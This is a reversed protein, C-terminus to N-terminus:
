RNHTHAFARHASSAKSFTRPARRRVITSDLGGSMLVGASDSRLRDAVATDLLERFREIYEESQRFQIPSSVCLNWYRRVELKETACVLLHAPPLRQIDAFSTSSPEQNMDWLLFDAIALDNLRSSVAPHMRLCDLTNGFVFTSGSRAYFLPKVGMQDRACFLRRERADWIAFSFDGLLNEVCAEGWCDYARLILESDPTSLSLSGASSNKARLKAILEARADIRADAIIFLREGLAAPQKETAAERTARLMAHGLGLPGQCYIRQEDPGRFALFQTLRELLVRDVPEGDLNLLGVFGSM